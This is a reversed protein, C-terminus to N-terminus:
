LPIIWHLALMVHWDFWLALQEHSEVPHEDDHEVFV